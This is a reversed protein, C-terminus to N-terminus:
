NLGFQALAHAAEVRGNKLAENLWIKARNLDKDVGEGYAYLLGTILQADKFGLNALPTCISYAIEFESIAFANLCRAQKNEYYTLDYISQEDVAPLNNHVAANASSITAIAILLVSFGLIIISKLM